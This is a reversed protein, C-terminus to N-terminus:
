PLKFKKQWLDKVFANSPMINENSGILKFLKIVNGYKNFAKKPNTKDYSGM